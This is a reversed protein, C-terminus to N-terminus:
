PRAAAFTAVGLLMFIAEIAHARIRKWRAARVLMLAVVGCYIAVPFRVSDRDHGNGIAARGATSDVGTVGIPRHSGRHPSEALLSDVSGGRWVLFGFLLLAGAEIATEIATPTAGHSLAAFALFNLPTLLTAILLIGRSTTPLKWRHEAYLGLGLMAATVGTFVGFQVFSHHAIESWFSVVLAISGGIILMGGILEGWRINSDRM